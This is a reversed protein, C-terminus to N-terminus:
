GKRRKSGDIYHKKNDCRRCLGELNSWDDSGGQKRPIIHDVIKAAVLPGHLGFLNVCYPHAKLYPDRVKTQWEYGYGRDTSNPRTDRQRPLRHRPCRSGEYVLANCGPAACPHPARRPM